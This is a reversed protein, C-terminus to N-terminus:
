RRILQPARWLVKGRVSAVCGHRGGSYLELPGCIRVWSLGLGIFVEVNDAGVLGEWSRGGGVRIQSPNQSTLASFTDKACRAECVEGTKKM